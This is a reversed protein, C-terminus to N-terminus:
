GNAHRSMAVRMAEQFAAFVGTGERACSAVHWRGELALKAVLADPSLASAVDQKNLQFVTRDLLGRSTLEELSARNADLDEKASSAVFIIADIADKMRDAEVLRHQAHAFPGELAVNAPFGSADRFKAHLAFGDGVKSLAPTRWFGGMIGLPNANRAAVASPVFPEDDVDFDIKM